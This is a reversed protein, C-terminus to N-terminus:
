APNVASILGQDFLRNILLACLKAKEESFYFDNFLNVIHKEIFDAKPYTNPQPLTFLYKATNAYHSSAFLGEAFLHKLLTEKNNLLINFRWINSVEKYHLEKPILTQYISNLKEKHVLINKKADKLKQSFNNEILTDSTDIWELGLQGIDFKAKGKIIEKWYHDLCEYRKKFREIHQPKTGINLPIKERSIGMAGYGLDIVKGKGMSFLTLDAISNEEYSTSPIGLCVDHILCPTYERFIKLAEYTWATGYYDALLLGIPKKSASIPKLILDNSFGYDYFIIEKGMHLFLFPVSFCIHTPLLWTDLHNHQKLFSYLIGLARNGYTIQM